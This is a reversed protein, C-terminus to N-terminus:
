ATARALAGDLIDFLGSILVLIGAIVLHGTAIAYASVFSVVLGAWTLTNPKIRSRSLVTLFPTTIRQAALKRLEALNPM